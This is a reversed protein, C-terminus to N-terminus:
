GSRREDLQAVHYGATRSDAVLHTVLHQTQSLITGLAAGKHQHCMGCPGMMLLVDKGNKIFGPLDSLEVLTLARLETATTIPATASLPRWLMDGVVGEDRLTQMTSDSREMCIRLSSHDDEWDAGSTVIIDIDKAKNYAEQIDHIETFIPIHSQRVITPARFGVFKVDSHLTPPHLFFTFFTNPDTTPNGPDHGSLMAHLVITKPLSPQPYALFDAFNQAVQRMSLGAAFGVSITKEEDAAHRQQVLRLLVKATERAVDMSSVTRVVNVQKLWFYHNSIKTSFAAHPPPEFKIYGLGGAERVLKYPEERNMRGAEGFKAFMTKRIGTVTLGQAFLECVASLKETHSLPITKPEPQEEGATGNESQAQDPSESQPSDDSPPPQSSDPAKKKRPMIRDERNSPAEFM